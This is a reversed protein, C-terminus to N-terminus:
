EGGGTTDALFSFDLTGEARINLRLSVSDTSLFTTPQGDSRGTLFIKMSIWTSDLSRALFDYDEKTLVLLQTSEDLAPISIDALTRVCDAYATNDFYNTDRAAQILFDVGFQFTNNVVAELSGSFDDLFPPLEELKMASFGPSFSLPETITFQFPVGFMGDISIVQDLPINGSGNLSIKGDFILSDPKFNILDEANEFVLRNNSGPGTVQQSISLSISDAGGNKVGILDMDVTMPITIDTNIDVSLEISALEIGSFEEPFMDGMGIEITVNDFIYEANNFTADVSKVRIPDGPNKGYFSFEVEFYDTAYLENYQGPIDIFTRYEFDDGLDVSATNLPFSYTISGNQPIAMSGTTFHQIGPAESIDLSMVDLLITGTINSTNTISFVINCTDLNVKEVSISADSLDDGFSIYSTDTLVQPDLDGLVYEGVLSSISGDVSFSSARMEPSTTLTELSDGCIVGNVIVMVYKPLEVGALSLNETSSGGPPITSDWILGVPNGLPDLIPAATTSDHLMVSVPNGLTAPMDNQITVALNGSAFRQIDMPFSIYSTDPPFSVSDVPIDTGDPVLSLDIIEDMTIPDSLSFTRTAFEVYEMSETITNTIPDAEMSMDLDFVTNFTDRMVFWDAQGSPDDPYKERFDDFPSEDGLFAVLTDFNVTISTLYFQYPGVEIKPPVIPGIRPIRFEFCGSLGLLAVIVFLVSKIKAMNQDKIKLPIKQIHKKHM